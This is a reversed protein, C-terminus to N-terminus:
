RTYDVIRRDRDARREGRMVRAVAAGLQHQRGADQRQLDM